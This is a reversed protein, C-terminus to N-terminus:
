GVNACTIYFTMPVSTPGPNVVLFRWTDAGTPASQLIQMFFGSQWGGSLVERGGACTMTELRTGLGPISVQRSVQQFQVNLESAGVANAAIESSGV